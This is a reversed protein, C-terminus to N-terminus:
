QLLYQFSIQAVEDWFVAIVLPGLSYITTLLYCRFEQTVVEIHFLSSLSTVLNHFGGVCFTVAYQDSFNSVTTWIVRHIMSTLVNVVVSIFAM